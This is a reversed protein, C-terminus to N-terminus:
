HRRMTSIAGDIIEGVGLPRLPVVGPRVEPTRPPFYGPPAPAPAGWGQPAGWAPAPSPVPAPNPASWDGSGPSSWGPPETTM